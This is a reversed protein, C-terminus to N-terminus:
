PTRMRSGFSVAEQHIAGSPGPMRLTGMKWTYLLVIPGILAHARQNPISVM